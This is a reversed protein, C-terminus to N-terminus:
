DKKDCILPLLLTVSQIPILVDSDANCNIVLVASSFVKLIHFFPKKLKM